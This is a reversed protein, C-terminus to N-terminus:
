YKQWIKLYKIQLVTQKTSAYLFYPISKLSKSTLHDLVNTIFTLPDIDTTSVTKM